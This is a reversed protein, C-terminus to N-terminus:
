NKNIRRPDRFNFLYKIRFNLFHTLVLGCEARVGNIAIAVRKDLFDADVRNACDLDDLM